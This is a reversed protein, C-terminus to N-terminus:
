RAGQFGYVMENLSANSGSVPTRSTQPSIHYAMQDLRYLVRQLRMNAGDDMLRSLVINQADYINRLAKWKEM